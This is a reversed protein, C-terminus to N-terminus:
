PHTSSPDSGQPTGAHPCAGPAALRSQEATHATDCSGNSQPLPHAERDPTPRPPTACSRPDASEVPAGPLRSCAQRRSNASDKPSSQAPPSESSAARSHDERQQPHKAAYPKRSRSEPSSSPANLAGRKSQAM